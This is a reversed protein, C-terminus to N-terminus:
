VQRPYFKGSRVKTVHGPSIGYSAAIDKYPRTDARIARVDADSLKTARSNHAQQAATAWRCNGPEYGRSNDIRDISMGDPAEGMDALFLEFSQWRDCVKIGRDFYIRKDCTPASYTCRRKMNAWITYTRSRGVARSSHGHTRAVSRRTDRYLCGCSKIDGRRLDGTCVLHPTGCDCLCEWKSGKVYRVATLRGFRQGTLDVRSM